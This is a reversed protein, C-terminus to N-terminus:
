EMEADDNKDIIIVGFNNGTGKDKVKKNSSIINCGIMQTNKKVKTNVLSGVITKNGSVINCGIMQTAGKKIKAGAGANAYNIAIHKDTESINELNSSVSYEASKEKEPYFSECVDVFNEIAQERLNKIKDREELVRPVSTVLYLAGGALFGVGGIIAGVSATVIGLPLTVTGAVASTIGMPLGFYANREYRETTVNQITDELESLTDEVEPNDPTKSLDLSHIKRLQNLSFYKLCKKDYGTEEYIKKILGKKSLASTNGSKISTIEAKDDLSVENVMISNGKIVIKNRGFHAVVKKNTNVISVNNHLDISGKIIKKPVMQNNIFLNGNEIKIINTGVYIEQNRM